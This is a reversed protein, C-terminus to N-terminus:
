GPNARIAEAEAKGVAAIGEAEQERAYKQAEASKMEAQAAETGLQQFVNDGARGLHRLADGLTHPDVDLGQYPFGIM